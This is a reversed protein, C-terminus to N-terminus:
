KSGKRYKRRGRVENRLKNFLMKNKRKETAVETKLELNERTLNRVEDEINAFKSGRDMMDDYIRFLCPKSLKNIQATFEECNLMLSMVYVLEEKSLEEKKEIDNM